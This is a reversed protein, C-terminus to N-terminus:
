HLTKSQQPQSTTWTRPGEKENIGEFDERPKELYESEMTQRNHLFEWSAKHGHLHYSALALAFKSPRLTGCLMHNIIKLKSARGLHLSVCGSQYLSLAEISSISSLNQNQDLQGDTLSTSVDTTTTFIGFRGMHSFYEAAPTQTNSRAIKIKHKTCSDRSNVNWLFSM